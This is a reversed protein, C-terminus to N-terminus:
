YLQTELLSLTWAHLSRSVSVMWALCILKIEKETYPLFWVHKNPWDLMCVGYMNWADSGHMCQVAMLPHESTMSGIKSSLTCYTHLNQTDTTYCQHTTIRKVSWWLIPRYLRRKSGTINWLQSIRTKAVRGLWVICMTWACVCNVTNYLRMKCNQRPHWM